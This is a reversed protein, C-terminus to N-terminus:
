SGQPGFLETNEAIWAFRVSQLEPNGVVDDADPTLFTCRLPLVAFDDVAMTLEEERRISAKPAYFAIVREGDVVVISLARETATLVEGGVVVFKGAETSQNQVGYYLSLGEEDFQSLRVIVYDVAVETTVERLTANRWSGRTEIEGGEFGFEPLDDRSTHGLDVWDPGLSVNAGGANKFPTLDSPTPMATGVPATFVYGVAATFIADDNVAM